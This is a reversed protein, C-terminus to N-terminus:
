ACNVQKGRSDLKAHFFMVKHSEKEWSFHGELFTNQRRIYNGCRKKGGEELSLKSMLMNVPVIAAM